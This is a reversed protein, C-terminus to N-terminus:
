ERVRHGPAQEGLGSVGSLIRGPVATLHLSDRVLSSRINEVLRMKRRRLLYWANWLSFFWDIWKWKRPM